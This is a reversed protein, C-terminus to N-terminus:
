VDATEQEMDQWMAEVADAMVAQEGARCPLGIYRAGAFEKGHRRRRWLRDFRGFREIPEWRTGAAAPAHADDLGKFAPHLRARRGVSGCCGPRRRSGARGVCLERRLAGQEPSRWGCARRWCRSLLGSSRM